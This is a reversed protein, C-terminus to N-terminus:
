SRALTYYYDYLGDKCYQTLSTRTHTVGDIGTWTITIGIEKIEGVKGAVDTSTRIATFRKAIQMTTADGSPFLTELNVESKPPLANVTSWSLLRIREMESQIIQSALTTSRATDLVTFGRQITIISASIGLAMVLTAIMVEVVTFGNQTAKRWRTFQTRRPQM